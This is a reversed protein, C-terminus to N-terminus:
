LGRAALAAEVAALVAKGGAIAAAELEPTVDHIAKGAAQAVSRVDAAIAAKEAEAEKRVEAVASNVAERTHHIVNEIETEVNQVIGM